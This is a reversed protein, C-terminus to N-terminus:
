NTFVGELWETAAKKATAKDGPVTLTSLNIEQQKGQADFWTAHYIVDSATECVTVSYKVDGVKIVLEFLVTPEEADVIPVEEAPEATELTFPEAPFVEDLFTEWMAFISLEHAEEMQRVIRNEGEESNYHISAITMSLSDEDECVVDLHYCNGDPCALRDRSDGDSKEAIYDQFWDYAEAAANFPQDIICHRVRLFANGSDLADITYRDISLLVYKSKEFEESNEAFPDAENLIRARYLAHGIRVDHTGFYDKPVEVPLSAQNNGTLDISLSIDSLRLGAVKNTDIDEDALYVNTFCLAGEEWLEKIAKSIDSEPINRDRFASLPLYKEGKLYESIATSLILNAFYSLHNLGPNQKVTAM